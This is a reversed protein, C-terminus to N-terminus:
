RRIITTTTQSSNQYHLFAAGLVLAGVVAYSWFKNKSFSSSESKDNRLTEAYAIPQDAVAWKGRLSEGKLICNPDFLLSLNEPNEPLHLIEHDSCSGRAFPRREKFYLNQFEEHRLVGTWKPYVNSILTVRHLGALIPIERGFDNSVAKGDLIIWEYDSLHDYPKWLLQKTKAQTLLHDVQTQVKKPFFKFVNATYFPLSKGYWLTQESTDVSHLALYLFSYFLIERSPEDWDDNLVEEVVLSFKTRGEKSSELSAMKADKFLQLLLEKKVPSPRTRVYNKALTEWQSNADISAEFISRSTGEPRIMIENGWATTLSLMFIPISLGKLVQRRGKDRKEIRSM